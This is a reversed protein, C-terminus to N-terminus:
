AGGAGGLLQRLAKGKDTTAATGRM